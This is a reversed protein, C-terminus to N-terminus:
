GEMEEYTDAVEKNAERKMQFAKNNLRNRLVETGGSRNEIGYEDCKKLIGEHTLHSFTKMDERIYPIYENKLFDIRMQNGNM